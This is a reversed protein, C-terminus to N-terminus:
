ATFRFFAQADRLGERNLQKWINEKDVQIKNNFHAM